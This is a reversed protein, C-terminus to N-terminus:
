NTQIKSLTPNTTWRKKKNKIKANRPEWFPLQNPECFELRMKNAGNVNGLNSAAAPSEAKDKKRLRL